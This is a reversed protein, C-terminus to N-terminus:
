ALLRRLLHFQPAYRSRKVSADSCPPHHTAWDALTGPPSSSAFSAEHLLRGSLPCGDHCPTNAACPPPPMAAHCCQVPASRVKRVIGPFVPSVSCFQASLSVPAQARVMPVKILRHQWWEPGMGHRWRWLAMIALVAGRARRAERDEVRGLGPLSPRGAFPVQQAPPRAAPSLHIQAAM